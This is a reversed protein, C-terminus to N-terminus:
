RAQRLVIEREGRREAVIRFNAGLFRLMVETNDARMIGSVRLRGLAPDALVLRERGYRNLMPVVEALATGSFELSPVRWALLEEAEVASVPQVKPKEAPEAGPALDVVVRNGAEVLALVPPPAAAPDAGSSTRDVSVRGSTVLVKVAERDLQVSFATGVARVEVAGAAVVFTRLSNKTVQFHAEGSQLVVRRLSGGYDVGIIAGEKLEVVSGDPLVRQAPRSVLIPASATPRLAASGVWCSLGILLLAALGGLSLRIRRRARRRNREIVRLVDETKGACRPWDLITGDPDNDGRM